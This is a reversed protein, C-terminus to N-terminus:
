GDEPGEDDDDGDDMKPKTDECSAFTNTGQGGHCKDTDVGGDLHDNGQGGHIMDNGADGFLQDIGPRGFIKDNGEGGSVTDDGIGAGLWDDGAGGSVTDNDQNAHVRDNGDGADINDSGKGGWITDNDIGGLIIDNGKNGSLRDNGENGEITDDGDGGTIRDHGEGGILCDNGKKGNIKDHGGFGRILDNGNTGKLKDNDPTGDIVMDYAEIPLGCFLDVPPEVDVGDCDQDIGDGPIDFAEPFIGSNEDDCDGGFPTFGDGDLDFGEDIMGNCNNDIGDDAETAVPNIASDSDNCDSVEAAFGDGDADTFGEDIVGDCNNDVGDFIETAGPNVSADSDDCDTIKTFGDGDLDFFPVIAVDLANIGRQGQSGDDFDSLVIRNGTLPDVRFLQGTGMPFTTGQPTGSREDLVIHNGSSEVAVSRDSSSGLPGQSVDTFDSMITRTGTLPDIRILLERVIGTFKDTTAILNGSSDITLGNPNRGTPFGSPIQFDSVITRFGTIPDVSFIIGNGAIGARLDAVIINGSADIAMNFPDRGIPGQSPDGFDSLITRTGTSPDIRFIVGAPGIGSVVTGTDPDSVLVMGSSEQIVRFPQQGTPGQSSDAFDSVIVRNGTLPDIGFLVGKGVLQDFNSAVAWIRSPGVAVGNLDVSTPGQSLNTLDSFVIRDGTVPDVKMLTPQNFGFTNSVPVLIDGTCLVATCTPDEQCADGIGDGNTDTQDPNPITPCNDALNDIGDGDSDPAFVQIRHNLPDTVYVDGSPSVAVGKPTNFQGAGSGLSGWKTLFARTSTFKQIRNNASETVYVNDSSDVDIGYPSNLQGDGVGLSGWSTIFTGTSTFKQIRDNEEDIVYVNGLSDFAVGLAADFQGPGSGFSGWNTIFVGTNTFKQVRHNAIEGVYVNDSSDVGIGEPFNFQGNAAGLSGWKTLFAGTSTFKQIRHNNQDTVYVNGSSDLAVANPRVFQGDGSGFSGWTSKFLYQEADAQQISFLLVSSVLVITVILSSSSQKNPETYNRIM